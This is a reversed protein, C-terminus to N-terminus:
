GPVLSVQYSKCALICTGQLVRGERYEFGTDVRSPGFTTSRCSLGLPPHVTGPCFDVYLGLKTRADQNYVLIERM